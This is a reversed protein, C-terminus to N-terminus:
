LCLVSNWLNKVWSTTCLVNESGDCGGQSRQIANVELRYHNKPNKKWINLVSHVNRKPWPHWNWSHAPNGSAPLKPFMAFVHKQNHSCIPMSINIGREQWKCSCDRAIRRFILLLFQSLTVTEGGLNFAGRGALNFGELFLNCAMVRSLGPCCLGWVTKEKTGSRSLWSCNQQAAPSHICLNISYTSM